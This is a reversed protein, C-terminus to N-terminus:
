VPTRRILKQMQPEICWENVKTICFFDCSWAFIVQIQYKLKNGQTMGALTSHPFNLNAARFWNHFLEATDRYQATGESLLLQTVNSCCQVWLEAYSMCTQLKNLYLTELLSTSIILLLHLPSQLFSVSLKALNLLFVCIKLCHSGFFAKSYIRRCLLDVKECMSSLSTDNSSRLSIDYGQLLHILFNSLTHDFM